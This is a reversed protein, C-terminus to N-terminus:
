RGHVVLVPRKALRIVAEAVSGLALRNLGRRGHTGIVILNARWRRAEDNILDGVRRSSGVNVILKTDFRTRAHKPKTSCNALIKQGIQRVEDRIERQLRGSVLPDVMYGPTEDVVHILRLMTRVSKALRMAEWLALKSTRSGDVAVLIRKYM